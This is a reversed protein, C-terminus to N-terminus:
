VAQTTDNFDEELIKVHSDSDYLREATSTVLIHVCKLCNRRNTRMEADRERDRRTHTHTQPTHADINTCMFVHLDFNTSSINFFVSDCIGVVCKIVHMHPFNMGCVYVCVCAYLCRRGDSRALVMDLMAEGMM